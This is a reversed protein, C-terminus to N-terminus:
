AWGEEVLERREQDNLRREMRMARKVHYKEKLNYAFAWFRQGEKALETKMVWCAVAADWQNACRKAKM